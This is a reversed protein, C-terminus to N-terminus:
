AKPKVKGINTSLFMPEGATRMAEAWTTLGDAKLRQSADGERVQTNM